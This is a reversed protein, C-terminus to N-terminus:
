VIAPPQLDVRVAAVVLRLLVGSCRVVMAGEGVVVRVGTAVSFKM